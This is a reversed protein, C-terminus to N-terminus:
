ETGVNTESTDFMQINFSCQDKTYSNYHTNTMFTQLPVRIYSDTEANLEVKFAFGNLEVYSDCSGYTWCNGNSECNLTPIVQTM